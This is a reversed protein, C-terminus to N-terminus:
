SLDGPIEKKVEIVAVNYARRAQDCCVTAALQDAVVTEKGLLEQQREIELLLMEDWDEASHVNGSWNVGGMM